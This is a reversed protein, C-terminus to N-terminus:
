LIEGFYGRALEANNKVLESLLIKAHRYTVYRQTKNTVFTLLEVKGTELIKALEICNSIHIDLAEESLLEAAWMACRLEIRDLLIQNYSRM